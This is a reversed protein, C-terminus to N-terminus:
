ERQRRRKKRKQYHITQATLVIVFLLIVLVLCFKLFTLIGVTSEGEEAGGDVPMFTTTGISKRPHEVPETAPPVTSEEESHEQLSEGSAAEETRRTFNQEFALVNSKTDLDALNYARLVIRPRTGGPILLNLQFTDTYEGTLANSGPWSELRSWNQGGDLSYRYYILPSDYDAARVTLSMQGTDYDCELLEIECVDPATSDTLTAQVLSEASAPALDVGASYDVGLSSSKLGFYKAVSLADTRGFEAFGEENQIYGADREEDVYCHEIIVAPVSLAAAERIIGYYDTGEANKRNKVGRLFLGKEEMAQLHLYGFQYGYANYPTECSVWVETGFMSHNESANYHISFLFDAGKEAAFEAREKLSLDRDDSHTLWVEVNDYQELEQMMAKATVMTMEKEITHGSQTGGNTGGHGPDIVIVIKDGVPQVRDAARASVGPAAIMGLILIVAWFLRKRHKVFLNM